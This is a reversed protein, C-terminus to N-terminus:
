DEDVDEGDEAGEDEEEENEEVEAGLELGYDDQAFGEWGATDLTYATHDTATWANTSSYARTALKNLM